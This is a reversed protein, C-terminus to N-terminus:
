FLTRVSFQRLNHRTLIHEKEKYTISVDDNIFNVTMGTMDVIQHYRSMENKKIERKMQDLKETVNKKKITKTKIENELDSKSVTRPFQCRYKNITAKKENLTNKLENLKENKEVLAREFEITEAQRASKRAELTDLFVKNSFDHKEILVMETLCDFDSEFIPHTGM